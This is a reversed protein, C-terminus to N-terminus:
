IPKGHVYIQVTNTAATATLAIRWYKFAGLKDLSFAFKKTENTASISSVAAAATNDYVKVANWDGATAGGVNSVELAISTTEGVGDILTGQFSYDSYGETSAGYDGPLNQTALNTTAIPWDYLQQNMPSVDTSKNAGSAADYSRLTARLASTSDLTLPGGQGDTLTLDTALYKGFPIVNLWGVFSSVATTIGTRLRDWTTGNYGALWARVGKLTVTNSVGDAPSAGVDAVTKADLSATSANGTSAKADISAVSAAIAADTVAQADQKAETAGGAIEATLTTGIDVALRGEATLETPLQTSTVWSM